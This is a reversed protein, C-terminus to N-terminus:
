VAWNEISLGDVRQFEKVNNTVLVCGTAKAHSAILMDLSGIPTGNKELLSRVKGYSESAYADFELIEINALLLMLAIKNQEVASSKEVGCCLEAYTISSICLEDPKHRKIHELVAVPKNKIAYICINTDLMYTM